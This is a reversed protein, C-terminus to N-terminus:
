QEMTSSSTTTQKKPKRNKRNNKKQQRRKQRQQKRLHKRYKRFNVNKECCTRFLKECKLADTFFETQIKSVFHKPSKRCDGGNNRRRKGKNCCHRKGKRFKRRKWPKMPKKEDQDNLPTEDDIVSGEEHVCLKLILANGGGNLKDNPDFQFLSNGSDLVQAKIDVCGCKPSVWAFPVSTFDETRNSDKISREVLYKTCSYELHQSEVSLSELRGIKSCTGNKNHNSNDPNLSILFRRIRSVEENSKLELSYRTEPKFYFTEDLKEDSLVLEYIPRKNNSNGNLVLTLDDKKVDTPWKESLNRPCNKHLQDTIYANNFSLSSSAIIFIIVLSPSFYKGSMELSNEM